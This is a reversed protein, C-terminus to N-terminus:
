LIHAITIKLKKALEEIIPLNEEATILDIDVEHDEDYYGAIWYIAKRVINGKSTNNSQLINWILLLFHEDNFHINFFNVLTNSM